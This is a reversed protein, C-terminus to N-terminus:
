PLHDKTSSASAPRLLAWEPKYAAAEALIHRVERFRQKREAPPCRSVSLRCRTEFDTETESPGPADGAELRNRGTETGAAELEELAEEEEEENKGFLEEKDYPLVVQVPEESAPAEGEPAAGAQDRRLAAVEQTLEAIRQDCKGLADVLDGIFVDSEQTDFFREEADPERAPRRRQLLLMLLRNDYTRVVGVAEGRYFVPKEVGELARRMAEDELRDTGVEAALRWAAAFARDHERWRYVLSRSIGAAEAAGAASMGQELGKLFAIRRKDGATGDGAAM